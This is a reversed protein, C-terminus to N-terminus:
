EPARVVFGHREFVALSDPERLFEIFRRARGLRPRSLIAAIPYNIAPGEGLPVAFAVTVQDSIAADTRYVVGAEAGGYEVAALAGRVNIGPLVRDALEEWLGASELWAKAYRGAPVGDPNAISLLRLWDGTLESASALAPGGKPVVVVLQNSLLDVRTGEAVLGAAELRDMEADGASIFVDARGGQQIQVALLGSSGFNIVPEIGTRQEFVDTLESLADRLSAAAFVKVHRAKGAERGCAAVLFLAAALLM